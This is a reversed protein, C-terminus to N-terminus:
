DTGFNIEEGDSLTDNDSDSETPITQHVFVENGDTLGDNDSDNDNPATSHSLEDANNLGDNEFDGTPGNIGSDSNPDLGHDHEWKDPLGDGDTDPNLPDTFSITREEGNSLGDNDFDGTSPLFHAVPYDATSVLISLGETVSSTNYSFQVGTTGTNNEAGITASSGDATHTTGDILKEYSFLILNSQEYLIVNFTLSANVTERSDFIGHDQWRIRFITGAHTNQTVYTIKGTGHSEIDLDNWYPAIFANPITSDPIPDNTYMQQFFPETPLGEFIDFTIFGNSHIDANTYSMGFLSFSIGMSVNRAFDDVFQVPSEIVPGGMEMIPIQISHYPTSSSFIVLGLAASDSASITVDEVVASSIDISVIGGTAQVVVTQSGGGSVLTGTNTSSAFVATGDCHLSFEIGNKTILNHYLDRLEAIITTSENPLVGHTVTISIYTLAPLPDVNDALTDNDTDGVLPNSFFGDAGATTEEHDSLGDSDTDSLNPNTRFGDDGFIVEEADRITDSDNDPPILVEELEIDIGTVFDNPILTVPTATGVLAFGDYFIKAYGFQEPIRVFAQSVTIGSLEYNGNEDTIASTIVNEGSDVAEVLFGIANEQFDKITIQGRIGGPDLPYVWKNPFFILCLLLCIGSAQKLIM